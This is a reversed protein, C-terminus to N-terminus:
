DFLNKVFNGLFFKLKFSTKSQINLQKREIIDAEERMALIKESIERVNSVYKRAFNRDHGFIHHINASASLSIFNNPDDSLEPNAWVPIIHHVQVKKDSGTIECVPHSKRYKRMARRTSNVKERNLSSWGAMISFRKKSVNDENFDRMYRIISDNM